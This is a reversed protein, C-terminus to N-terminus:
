LSLLARAADLRQEGFRLRVYAARCAADDNHRYCSELGRFAAAHDALAADMADHGREFRSPPALGRSEVTLAEVREAQLRMAHATERDSRDGFANEVTATRALRIAHSLADVLDAAQERYSPGAERAAVVPALLAVLVLAPGIRVRTLRDVSAM